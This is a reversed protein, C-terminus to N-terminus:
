GPLRPRVGSLLLETARRPAEVLLSFGAARRPLRVHKRNREVAEVVIDALKEVSTDALMGLRELRRFADGTPAYNALGDSMDTPVVKGMEVLTTRVPLGRLDARLGATFQSLGAKTSSYLVLGPFVAVSSLSSVNVIHGGGRELMLPVAQRALEMPATLNVRVIHDLAAPDTTPFYGMADIGANNVLIDVPGGESEVRAVLGAVQAPNALDAVHATGGLESALESLADVTRAVLAVRAGADAFRRALGAGIGRSAGTILVRRGAVKV